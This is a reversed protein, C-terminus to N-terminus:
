AQRAPAHMMLPQPQRRRGGGPAPADTDSARALFWEYAEDIGTRDGTALLDLPLGRVVAMGLRAGARVTREDASAKVLAAVPAVWPEVIGGLFGETGPRGRLASAYSEFFLREQQWRGPDSLRRWSRRADPLTPGPELLAAQQQEEVARTVAALLGERSGFHDILM